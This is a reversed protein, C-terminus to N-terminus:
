AVEKEASAKAVMRATHAEDLLESLEVSLPLVTSQIENGVESYGVMIKMALEEQDAPVIGTKGRHMDRLEKVRITLGKLRQALEVAKAEVLKADKTFSVLEKDQLLIGQQSVSMIVNAISTYTEDHQEWVSVHHGRRELRVVERKIRRNKAKKGM